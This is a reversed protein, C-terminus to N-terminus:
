PARSSSISEEVDAPLSWSKRETSELPLPKERAGLRLLAPLLLLDGLLAAVMAASTITGFRSMPLFSSFALVGFGAASMTSTSVVPWWVRAVSRAVPHREERFGQFTTLMHVTNDVALGLAIAGVMVTAVDLPLNLWGLTGYILVLPSLNPIAGLFALRWSRLGVLLVLCVLFAASGLSTIQSTILYGQMRVMLRDLGTVHVQRAGLTQGLSAGLADAREILHQFRVVDGSLSTVRVRLAGSGDERALLHSAVVKQLEDKRSLLTDSGLLRGPNLWAPDEGLDCIPGLMGAIAAGARPGAPLEDRHALAADLVGLRTTIFLKLFVRRTASAEVSELVQARILALSDTVSTVGVVGPLGALQGQFRAVAALQQPDTLPRLDDLEFLIELHAIGTGARRLAELDVLVPHDDPLLATATSEIRLRPLGLGVSLILLLAVVLVPGAALNLARPPTSKPERGEGVRVPVWGLAFTAPLWSTAVLFSLLIGISAFAGMERIPGIDSVLLSVFGMSTAMAAIGCPRLASARARVAAAHRARRREECTAPASAGAKQRERDAECTAAVFARFVRLSTASALVLLIAPLATTIVNLERGSAVLITAVFPIAFVTTSVILLAGRLSRTAIVLVILAVLGLIPFLKSIQERSARDLTVNLLPTGAVLLDLGDEREREATFALVADVARARLAPQKRADPHRALRLGLLAIPTRRPDAETPRGILYTGGILPLDWLEEARGQRLLDAYIPVQHPGVVGRVLGTGGQEEPGLRALVARELRLLREAGDRELVGRDRVGILLIEDRGFLEEFRKLSRAAPDDQVLFAEISNDTGLGRFALFAGAAAWIGLAAVVIARAPLARRPEGDM